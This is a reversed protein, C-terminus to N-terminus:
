WPCAWWERAHEGRVPMALIVWELASLELIAWEFATLQMMVWESASFELIAWAWSSFASLSIVELPRSDVAEVAVEVLVATQQPSGRDRWWRGQAAVAVARVTAM